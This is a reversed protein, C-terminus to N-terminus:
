NVLFMREKTWCLPAAQLVVRKRSVLQPGSIRGYGGCVPDPTHGRLTRPQVMFLDWRFGGQRLFGVMHRNGERAVQPGKEAM